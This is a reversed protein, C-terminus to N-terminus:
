KQCTNPCASVPLVCWIILGLAQVDADCVDAAFFDAACVDLLQRAMNYGSNTRGWLFEEPDECEGLHTSQQMELGSVFMGDVSVELSSNIM